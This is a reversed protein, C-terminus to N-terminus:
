LIFNERLLTKQVVNCIDEHPVETINKKIIFLMDHGGQVKETVNEICSRFLRKIRNRAVARKDIRKSVVFGYRNYALGNTAVKLLFFPSTISNANALKLRSNLRYKRKLM